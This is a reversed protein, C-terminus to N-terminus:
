LCLCMFKIGLVWMSYVPDPLTSCAQLRAAPFTSLPVHRPSVLWGAWGIQCTGPCHVVRDWFCLITAGFFLLRLNKQGGCAGVCMHVQMHMHVQVSMFVCVSPMFSSECPIYIFLCLPCPTWSHSKGASTQRDMLARPSRFQRDTQGHTTGQNEQVTWRDM